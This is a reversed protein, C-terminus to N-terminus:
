RTNLSLFKEIESKIFIAQEECEINGLIKQKEGIETVAYLEIYKRRNRGKYRKQELQIQSINTIPVRVSASYPLPKHIVSIIENNVLIYSSNVLKTLLYYTVYLFWPVLIVLFMWSGQEIVGDVYPPAFVLGIIVLLIAPPVYGWTFWRRRILVSDPGRSIVLHDPLYFDQKESNL